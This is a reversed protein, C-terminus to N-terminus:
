FFEQFNIKLFTSKKSFKEFLSFQGRELSVLFHIIYPPIGAPLEALIIGKM